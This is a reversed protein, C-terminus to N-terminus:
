EKIKKLKEQKERKVMHVLFIVILSINATAFLIVGTGIVYVLGQAFLIFGSPFDKLERFTSIMFYLVGIDLGTLLFALIPLMIKLITSHKVFM